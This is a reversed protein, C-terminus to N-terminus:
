DPCQNPCEVSETYAFLMVPDVTFKGSSNDNAFFEVEHDGTRCLDSMSSTPPATVTVLLQNVNETAEDFAVSISVNSCQSITAM